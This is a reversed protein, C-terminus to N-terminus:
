EGPRSRGHGHGIKRTQAAAAAVLSEGLADLPEVARIGVRREAVGAGLGRQRTAPERFERGERSQRAGADLIGAALELSRERIEGLEDLGIEPDTHREELSTAPVGM